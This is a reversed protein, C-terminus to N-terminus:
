PFIFNVGFRVMSDAAGDPKVVNHYYGATLNLGLGSDFAITKGVGLGLPITWANGSGATWDYTIMNSYQIEWGPAGPINYFFMPQLISTSFGSEDGWLHGGIIATSLNETLNGVLVGIPGVGWGAGALRSDTRTKLSVMPGVGWKWAADTRPSIFSQLLIDSLGWTRSGGPPLPDSVNPRQAGPAMGLIPIVGRLTLNFGQKEFPIGYVPNLSFSYSTQDRGTNFLVDNDSMLAKIHALPDQLKRAMKEAASVEGEDQAASPVTWALVLILLAFVTEKLRYEM